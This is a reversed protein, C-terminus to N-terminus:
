IGIRTKPYCWFQLERSFFFYLLCSCIWGKYFGVIYQSVYVKLRRDVFVTMCSRLFPYVINSQFNFTKTLTSDTARQDIENGWLAVIRFSTTHTVFYIIVEYVNSKWLCDSVIITSQHRAVHSVM